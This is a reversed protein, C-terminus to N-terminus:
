LFFFQGPDETVIPPKGLAVKVFAFEEAEEVLKNKVDEIQLLGWTNFTELHNFKRGYSALEDTAENLKRHIHRVFVSKERLLHMVYGVLCEYPHSTSPKFDDGFALKLLDVTNQCDSEIIVCQVNPFHIVLQDVTCRMADMEGFQTVMKKMGKTILKCPEVVGVLEYEITDRILGELICRGNLSFPM